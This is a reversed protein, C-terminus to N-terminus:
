PSASYQRAREAVKLVRKWCNVIGLTLFIRLTLTM